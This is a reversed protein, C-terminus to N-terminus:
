LSHSQYQKVPKYTECLSCRRWIEGSSDTYNKTARGSLYKQVVEYKVGYKKSLAM